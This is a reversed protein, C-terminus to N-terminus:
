EGGEGPTDEIRYAKNLRALKYAVFALSVARAPTRAYEEVCHERGYELNEGWEIVCAIEGKYRDPGLSWDLGILLEVAHNLNGPWDRYLTELVGKGPPFGRILTCIGEPSTQQDISAIEWGFMEAMLARLSNNDMARVQEMTLKADM